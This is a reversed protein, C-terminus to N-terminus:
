SMLATLYADLRQEVVEVTLDPRGAERWPQSIEPLEESSALADRVQWYHPNTPSLSGGADLYAQTFHFAWAPGHLLALNTACHAVDLDSPGWSAGAWDVVGSLGAANFLVNGPQFDRHLLHGEYPPPPRRIIDIAATWVLPDASQPVVVTDATTLAEFLPPHKAVPLAHIAALQRALAPVRAELGDDTLVTRGPLHTMLLSPHSAAVLAPAPIDTGTLLTLALIERDLSGHTITRLVLARTSGGRSSITLKRVDASIGGHLPTTSVVREGSALQRGAWALANM